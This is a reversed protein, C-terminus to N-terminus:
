RNGFNFIKSLDVEEKLKKEEETWTANRKPTETEPVQQVPQEPAQQQPQNVQPEEKMQIFDSNQFSSTEQSQAQQQPKPNSPFGSELGQSSNQVPEPTRPQPEPQQVNVPQVPPQSSEQNFFNSQPKPENQGALENITLNNDIGPIKFDVNLNSTNQTTETANRVEEKSFEPEITQASPTQNVNQVQPSQSAINRENDRKPTQFDVQIDVPKPNLAANRLEEIKNNMSTTNTTQRITQQTQQRMEQLRQEEQAQAQEKAIRDEEQQQKEEQVRRKEAVKDAFMHISDKKATYEDQVKATTGLMDEAMRRAENESAALGGQLLTNILTQIQQDVMKVKEENLDLPGEVVSLVVM